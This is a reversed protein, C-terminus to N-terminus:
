QKNPINKWKKEIDKVKADWAKVDDKTLVTIEGGQYEGEVEGLKEEIMGEVDLYAEKLKKLMEEDPTWLEREAAEMLRRAIEELAYPNNEKFWKRMEEDLVFTDAIADFVWKEIIGTTASWGYVRGVRESIDSAGKYGHQKKGKIWKPNLLRTRVTREIEDKMDRIEPRDPDRTDGFYMRVDKGSITEAACTFGGHYGFFCCCDLTDFDDSELKEYTINVSKLLNVLENPAAHGYIGEGYAYCGWDIWVDALDKKEKWASAFVALNAGAGYAGPKESFVRYTARRFATKEDCEKLLSKMNEEVHKKVFNMEPPEDLSAVRRVAKDMLEMLNPMTDRFIGDVRITCDIRPRGLEELPIVEVDKVIGNEDWIPKTGMTYLIQAIGEGDARFPDICWEVFGINEPYNGENEKKYANILEDALKVGVRWAAQTPISMPDVSYFNRGTPLVEIKGRIISGSAGPEIYDGKFGALLNEMEKSVGQIRPILSIGFRVADILKRRKEESWKRAYEEGIIKSCIEIIKEDPLKKQLDSVKM